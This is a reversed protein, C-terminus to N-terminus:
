HLKCGGDTPTKSRESRTFYLPGLAMPGSRKGPAPPFGLVLDFFNM